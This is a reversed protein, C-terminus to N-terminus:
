KRLNRGFYFIQTSFGAILLKLWFIPLAVGEGDAVQTHNPMSSNVAMMLGGSAQM